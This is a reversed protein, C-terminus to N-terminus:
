PAMLVVSGINKQQNGRSIEASFVKYWCKLGGGNVTNEQEYEIRDIQTNLDEAQDSLLPASYETIYMTKARKLWGSKGFKLENDKSYSNKYNGKQSNSFAERSTWQRKKMAALVEEGTPCITTATESSKPDNGACAADPISAVALALIASSLYLMKNKFLNQM